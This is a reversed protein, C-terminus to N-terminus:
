LFWSRKPSANLGQYGEPDLTQLVSTVRWDRKKEDRKRETKNKEQLEARETKTTITVSFM